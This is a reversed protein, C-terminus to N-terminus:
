PSCSHLWECDTSFTQANCFFNICVQTGVRLSEEPRSAVDGPVHLKETEADQYVSILIGGDRAQRLYLTEARLEPKHASEM